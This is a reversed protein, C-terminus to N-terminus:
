DGERSFWLGYSIAIDYVAKQRKQRNMMDKENGNEMFWKWKKEGIAKQTEESSHAWMRKLEIDLEVGSRKAARALEKVNSRGFEQLIETIPKIEKEYDTLDKDNKLEEEKWLLWPRSIIDGNEEMRISELSTGIAGQCIHFDIFSACGLEAYKMKKKGSECCEEAIRYAEAYPAHSNFVAIGVCASAKTKEELTNENFEYNHRRLKDMYNKACDFADKAKVIFNIEDGASVVIRFSNGKNIPLEIAHVIGAEVYLEQISNSFKRLASACEEYNSKNRTVEEVKAGMGNGDIYVVALNSDVGKEEVMNDLINENLKYYKELEVLCKKEDESRIRAIEMHYKLLKAFSEKSLKGKQRINAIAIDMIAKSTGSRRYREDKQYTYDVLPMTTKRDVQVIPPCAWPSINSECAENRRHKDDLRSRDREYDDFNDIKICTGSVRLTGIAEMLSKTFQYTVKKFIEENKFLLIFNGGGDYIVEGIYGEEIHKKYKDVKFDGNGESEHKYSYIGKNGEKLQIKTAAPFLYDEFCDRVIWSGGAIEQLKNTRFIFEQKGRIDYMALVYKDEKAEEM